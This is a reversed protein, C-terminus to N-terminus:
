PYAVNEVQGGGHQAAPKNVQLPNGIMGVFATSIDGGKDQQGYQGEPAHHRVHYSDKTFQQFKYPFLVLFDQGVLASILGPFTSIGRSHGPRIVPM